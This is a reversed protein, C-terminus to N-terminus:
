SIGTKKISTIAEEAAERVIRSEDRRARELAPLAPKAAPGIKGLAAAAQRRLTADSARLTAALDPVATAADPGIHGLAIAAQTRVRLDEDKLLRALEPVAEKAEKGKLGLGYAAQARHAPDKDKSLEILQSLSRGIHAPRTAGGCGIGCSVVPLLLGAWILIIPVRANRLPHCMMDGLRRANVKTSNSTTMPM